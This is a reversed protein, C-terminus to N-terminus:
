LRSIGDDLRRSDAEAVAYTGADLDGSDNSEGDLRLATVMKIFRHDKRVCQSTDSRM